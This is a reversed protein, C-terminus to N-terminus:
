LVGGGASVLFVLFRDAGRVVGGREIVRGLAGSLFVLPLLRGTQHFLALLVGDYGVFTARGM